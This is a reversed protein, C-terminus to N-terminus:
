RIELKVIEGNEGVVFSFEREEQIHGDEYVVTGSNNMPDVSVSVVYWKGGLVADVPSIEAINERLYTEVTQVESVEVAPTLAPLGLILFGLVITALVAILILIIEKKM